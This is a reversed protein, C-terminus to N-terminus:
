TKGFFGFTNSIPVPEPQIAIVKFNSIGSASIMAVSMDFGAIFIACFFARLCPTLGLMKMIDSKSLFTLNM